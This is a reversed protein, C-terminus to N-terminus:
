LVTLYFHRHGFYERAERRLPVWERQFSLLPLLRIMALNWVTLHVASWLYNGLHNQLPSIYNEDRLDVLGLPLGFTETLSQIDQNIPASGGFFQGTLKNRSQHKGRCM